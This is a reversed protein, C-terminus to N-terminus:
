AVFKGAGFFSRVVARDGLGGVVIDLKRGRGLRRLREKQASLSL